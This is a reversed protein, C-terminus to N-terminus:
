KFAFSSEHEDGFESIDIKDEIKDLDVDSSYEREKPPVYWSPDDVPPQAVDEEMTRSDVFDTRRRKPDDMPPQGFDEEEEITRKDVFDTNRKKKRDDVPPQGFDEAVTRINDIIDTNRRKKPDDVDVPPQAFDEAVTRLNDIFNTNRKKPDDVDVPPQAFDEDEEMRNNDIFDTCRKKKERSQLDPPISGTAFSHNVLLLSKVNGFIMEGLVAEYFLPDSKFFDILQPHVSSIHEIAPIKSGRYGCIQSAWVGGKM